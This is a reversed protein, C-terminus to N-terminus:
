LITFPWYIKRIRFTKKLTKRYIMRRHVNINLTWVDHTCRILNFPNFYRQYRWLHNFLEKFALLMEQWWAVHTCWAFTCDAFSFFFCWRGSSSGLSCHSFCFPLLSCQAGFFCMFCFCSIFHILHGSLFISLTSFGRFLCVIVLLELSFQCIFSRFCIDYNHLIKLCFINMWRRRM